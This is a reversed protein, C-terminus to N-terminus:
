IESEESEDGDYENDNENDSCTIGVRALDDDDTFMYLLSINFYIIIITYFRKVRSLLIKVCIPNYIVFFTSM